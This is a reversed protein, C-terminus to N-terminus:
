APDGDKGVGDGVADRRALHDLARGGHELLQELVREVRLGARHRDGDLGAALRQDADGVVALAHPALVRQEREVPVGGALDARGVIEHADAGEPEPALRQGRDRRHAAELQLRRGRAPLRIRARAEGGGAPQDGGDLVRHPLRARGHGHARQEEVGGGAPFEQARGAALRPRADLGHRRERQAEGLEAHRHQGVALLHDLRQRRRRQGLPHRLHQPLAEGRRQQRDLM